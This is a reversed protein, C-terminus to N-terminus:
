LAFQDFVPDSVLKKSAWFIFAGLIVDFAPKSLWYLFLSDWFTRLVNQSESKKYAVIFPSFRHKKAGGRRPL